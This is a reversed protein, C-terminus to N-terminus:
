FVSFCFINKFTKWFLELWLYRLAIKFHFNLTGNEIHKGTQWIEHQFLSYLPASSFLMLTIELPEASTCLLIHYSM